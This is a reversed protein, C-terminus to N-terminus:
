ILVVNQPRIQAQFTPYDNHKMDFECHGLRVFINDRAKIDGNHSALVLGCIRVEPHCGTPLDHKTIPMIYISTNAWDVKKRRYIDSRATCAREGIENLPWFDPHILVSIHYQQDNESLKASRRFHFRNQRYRSWSEISTADIPLLSAEILLEGSQCVERQQRFTKSNQLIATACLLESYDSPISETLPYPAAEVSFISWTPARNNTKYGTGGGCRWLLQHPYVWTGIAWLGAFSTLGTRKEICEVIGTIAALRDGAFTFKTQQYERMIYDWFEWVEHIMPHIQDASARIPHVLREPWYQAAASLSDKKSIGKFVDRGLKEPLYRAKGAYDEDEYLECCEWTVTEGFYITRPSLLREQFAWGRRNLASGDINARYRDKIEPRAVYQAGHEDSGLSCDATMLPNRYAFCGESSEQAGSAAITVMCNRYVSCMSKVEHIWDEDSDQVICLADIWLYEIGLYCCIDIADRCSKPLQSIPIDIRLQAETKRTLKLYSGTGWCYSLTAYATTNPTLGETEVVKAVVCSSETARVIHILRTPLILSENDAVGCRSHTSLCQHIMGEAWSLCHVSATTVPLRQNPLYQKWANNSADAEGIVIDIHGSGFEVSGETRGFYSTLLRVKLVTAEPNIFVALSVGPKTLTDDWQRFITVFLSCMHCGSAASKEFHSVQRREFAINHYYMRWTPSVQLKEYDYDGIETWDLNMHRLISHRILQCKLCLSNQTVSTQSLSSGMSIETPTFQRPAYSAYNDALVVGSLNNQWIRNASHDGNTTNPGSRVSKDEM